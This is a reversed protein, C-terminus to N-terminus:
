SLSPPPLVTINNYNYYFRPSHVMCECFMTIYYHKKKPVKWLILTFLISPILTM